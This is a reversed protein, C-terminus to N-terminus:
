RPALPVWSSTGEANPGVLTEFGGDVFRVETRAVLDGPPREVSAHTVGVRDGGLDLLWAWLLGRQVHVAVCAAQQGDDALACALDGRLARGLLRWSPAGDDPIVVELLEQPADGPSIAREAGTDPDRCTRLAIVLRDAALPHWWAVQAHFSARQDGDTDALTCVDFWPCVPDEEAPTRADHCTV